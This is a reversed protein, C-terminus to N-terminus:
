EIILFLEPKFNSYMNKKLIIKCSCLLGNEEYIM